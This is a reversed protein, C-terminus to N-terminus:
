VSDNKVPMARLYEIITEIHIERQEDELRMIDERVERDYCVVFSLDSYVASDSLGLIVGIDRIVEAPVVLGVNGIVHFIGRCKINHNVRVSNQQVYVVVFPHRLLVDIIPNVSTYTLHTTKSQVVVLPDYAGSRMLEALTETGWGIPLTYVDPSGRAPIHVLVSMKVWQKFGLFLEIKRICQLFNFKDV